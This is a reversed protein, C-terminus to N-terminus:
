ELAGAVICGIAFLLPAVIGYIVLERKSFKESRIDKAFLGYIEMFTRM